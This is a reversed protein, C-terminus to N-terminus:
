RVGLLLKAFRLSENAEEIQRIEEESKGAIRLISSPDIPISSGHPDQWEPCNDHLWRAVRWPPMSKIQMRASELAEIERESLIGLDFDHLLHVSHNTRESIHANWLTQDSESGKGKFLNYTASLVPGKDMSVFSDGTITKGWQVLADKDAVYLTKLALFVDLQGGEKQVLYAVAAITKQIDFDLLM